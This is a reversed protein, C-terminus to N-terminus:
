FQHTMHSAPRPVRKVRYSGAERDFKRHMPDQGLNRRIFGMPTVILVFVVGMLIRTNVWGLVYGIAMWCRYPWKLVLPIVLAPLILAVALYLAWERPDQSRFVLPWLGIVGFIGGVTLGFSRLDKNTVATQM